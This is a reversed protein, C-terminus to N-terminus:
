NDGRVENIANAFEDWQKKSLMVEHLCYEKGRLMFWAAKIRSIIEWIGRQKTYFGSALTDIYAFEEDENLRFIIQFGNGCGCTCHIHIDKM